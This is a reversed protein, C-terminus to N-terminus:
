YKSTLLNRQETSKYLHAIDNLRLIIRDDLKNSTLVTLSAPDTHFHVNPITKIDLKLWWNVIQVIPGGHSVIVLPVGLSTLSEMCRTIREYLQRMTEAGSYMQWDLISKTPEIYHEEAEEWTMNVAIGNNM